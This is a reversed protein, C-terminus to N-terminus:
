QPNMMTGMFVPLNTENDIIAYVFPRNLVIKHPPQTMASGAKMEVKTVAAAKTGETDVTIFTKHLVKSVYIKDTKSNIMKTFNAKLPDFCEKLGMQNLPEVLEIKYESKFKPLSAMVNDHSQNNLINIFSDGSLSSIYNDMSINENPLLAIFSYKGNAYSKAFGETKDDKLYVTEESHMFDVSQKKGNELQFDSKQVDNPKYINMWKDEFYVANILTMVTLSDVKDIIKDIANGTNLKVWNNIDKVTKPDSFDAKYASANYYDANTQLFDMKVDINKDESYWISNAIALKGSADKTLKQSLTNYYANLDKINIGYKGLLNEFEILTKGDAGNATMALALYVSTPSVLSNEGKTYTNKFLDVSFDATSRIFEEKLEATNVKQPTIGKMLDKAFVKVTGSNSFISNFLILFAILASITPIGIFSLRRFNIKRGKKVQNKLRYKSEQSLDLKELNTDAINKLNTLKKM